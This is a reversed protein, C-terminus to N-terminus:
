GHTRHTYFAVLIGRMSALLAWWHGLIAGIHGGFPCGLHGGSAGICSRSQGLRGSPPRLPGLIGGLRGLIARSLGSDDWALWLAAAPSCSRVYRGYARAGGNWSSTLAVLWHLPPLVTPCILPPPRSLLPSAELFLLSPWSGPYPPVIPCIICHSIVDAPTRIVSDWRSAGFVYRLLSRVDSNRTSAM